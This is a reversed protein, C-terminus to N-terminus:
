SIVLTMFSYVLWGVFVGSRLLLNYKFTINLYVPFYFIISVCVLSVVNFHMQEFFECSTLKIDFCDPVDLLNGIEQRSTYHTM